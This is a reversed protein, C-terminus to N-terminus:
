EILGLNFCKESQSRSIMAVPSRSAKKGAAVRSYAGNTSSTHFSGATCSVYLLFSSSWKRGSTASYKKLRTSCRTDGKKKSSTSCYFSVQLMQNNQQKKKTQILKQSFQTRRSFTTKEIVLGVEPVLLINSSCTIKHHNAM